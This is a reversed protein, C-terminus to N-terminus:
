FNPYPPRSSLVWAGFFVAKKGLIPVKLGNKPLFHGNKPHPPGSFGIKRSGYWVNSTKKSDLVQLIPNPPRSSVEWAWFVTNQGMKAM